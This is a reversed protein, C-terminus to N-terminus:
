APAAPEVAPAAPEVAPAAPEVAPAAGAPLATAWEVPIWGSEGYCSGSLIRVQRTGMWGVDLILARTGKEVAFVRGDSLMQKLGIADNAITSKTWEDLDAATVAVAVLTAGGGQDLTVNDGAKLTTSVPPSALPTTASPAPSCGTGTELILTIAVLWFAITLVVGTAGRGEGRKM